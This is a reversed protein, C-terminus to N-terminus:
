PCAERRADLNLNKILTSFQLVAARPCVEAATLNYEASFVAKGASIFPRLLDCENFEFCQENLAWDFAALLDPVQGLDNKLGVSLGRAHASDALFRSYRLQDSALLPFGTDNGYGDVNDLEIGDFGKSRCLDMRAQMVPALASIQRVDLWMEGPWGDLAKGKVVAPFNPADPRWDEFSGASTYCIVKKGRAHLEAVTAPSADFLDIDFMAADVNTDIAGTLQWQWSLRPAPMWVAAATTGGSGGGPMGGTGGPTNAATGGRGGGNAGSGGNARCAVSATLTVWLLLRNVRPWCVGM